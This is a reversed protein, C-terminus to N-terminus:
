RATAHQHALHAPGATADRELVVIGADNLGDKVAKLCDLWAGDYHGLTLGNAGCEASVRIGARVLEPTAKPRPSIASTFYKEVGIAHRIGHLYGRKWGQVREMSGSQEQYDSSRVSDLFPAVGKLDLGMLEPYPAYHNLRVDINDRVAHCADHIQQYFETLSDTRFKLWAYLEPTDLLLAAVSTTSARLLALDFAQRANFRDFGDALWRLKEVIADWDLGYQSRAKEACHECFCGGHVVSLLRDIETVDAARGWPSGSEAFGRVCTQVMDIDYNAVLDTYLAIGYTRVDPHNFCIRQDISNGYINKQVIEPFEERVREKDIWTHSLEAGTYMNRKRSADILL